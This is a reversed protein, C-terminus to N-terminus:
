IPKMKDLFKNLLENERQLMENKRKIEEIERKLKVIEEKLRLVDADSINTKEEWFYQFFNHKLATSFKLLTDTDLYPRSYIRYISSNDMGLMKSLASVSIRRENCYNKIISGIHVSM